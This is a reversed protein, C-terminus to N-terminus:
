REAAYVQWEEPIGKLEHTGRDTFTLGSGAVLDKVTRSVLVEGPGALASIRQGIHVAIGAVDEGRTEIEGTHLGARIQLGLRDVADSLAIACRIARAPGDFTALTGDGTTKVQRGRFDALAGATAADYEDLIEHWRRDGMAAAHRTSDVIDTFLVTALVRDSPLAPRAGTLFEAFAGAVADPEALGSPVEVYRAGPTAAFLAALPGGGGAGVLAARQSGVADLM